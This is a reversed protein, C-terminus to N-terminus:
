RRPFGRFFRVESNSSQITSSLYKEGAEFISLQRDRHLHDHRFELYTQYGADDNDICSIV